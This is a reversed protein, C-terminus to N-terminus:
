KFDIFKQKHSKIKRQENAYRNELEMDVMKLKDDLPYERRAQRIEVIAKDLDLTKSHVDIKLFVDHYESLSQGFVSTLLISTLLLIKM